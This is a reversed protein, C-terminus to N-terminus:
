AALQDVHRYGLEFELPTLYNITSHRRLTNYYNNIWDTVLNQFHALGKWLIHHVLEKKLTAFFSEAAANDWCVGTRGLSRTIKKKTCYEV